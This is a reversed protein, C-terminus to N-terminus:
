QLFTIKFKQGSTGKVKPWPWELDLRDIWIMGYYKVSKILLKQTIKSVSLCLCISLPSIMAEETSIVIIFWCARLALRIDDWLLLSQGAQLGDLPLIRQGILKGTEEYVAIRFVALDPLVVQGM